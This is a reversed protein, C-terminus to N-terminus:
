SYMESPFGGRRKATAEIVDRVQGSEERATAGCLCQVYDGQPALMWDHEHHLIAANYRKEHKHFRRRNILRNKGM